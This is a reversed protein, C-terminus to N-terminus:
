SERIWEKIRNGVDSVLWEYQDGVFFLGCHAGVEDVDRMFVRVWCPDIQGNIKPPLMCFRKDRMAKNAESSVVRRDDSRGDPSDRGGCVVESKSASPTHSSKLKVEERKARLNEKENLKTEKESLKRAAKARKEMLKERDKIAKGHNKLAQMYAKNQRSYEKQALSRADKDAYSSPSFAPPQKPSPPLPPLFFDTETKSQGPTESRDDKSPTSVTTARPFVIDSTLQSNDNNNSNITEMTKDDSENDITPAADSLVIEPAIEPVAIDGPPCGSSAVSTCEDSDQSAKLVEENDQHEDVSVHSSRPLSRSGHNSFSMDQLEREIPEKPEESDIRQSLQAARESPPPLKTKKPRGSSATYYNVFRVRTAHNGQHPDTDALARLRSYRNKLGKYDTLCGGFELHSTVYSKAATALGDSHKTMFHIASDWGKRVPTPMDNNFRPNFNPDGCSVAPWLVAQPVNASNPTASTERTLNTNSSAFTSADSTQVSAADTSLTQFSPALTSEDGAPMPRLESEGTMMNSPRPCSFEPAPRFLSGIGSIVVGPHMGLFPCDFNITGLIRHRLMNTSTRSYPPLLAVESALIGGM